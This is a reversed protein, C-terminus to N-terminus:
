TDNLWDSVERCTLIEQVVNHLDQWGALQAPDAASKQLYEVYFAVEKAYLKLEGTPLGEVYKIVEPNAM